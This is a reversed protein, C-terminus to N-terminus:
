SPLNNPDFLNIQTLVSFICGLYMFIQSQWNIFVSPFSLSRTGGDWNIFPPAFTFISILIYQSSPSASLLAIQLSSSYYGSFYQYKESKLFQRHHFNCIRFLDIHLHLDKRQSCLPHNWQTSGEAPLLRYQGPPHLFTLRHESSMTPSLSFCQFQACYSFVNGINLPLICLADHKEINGSTGFKHFTCKTMRFCLKFIPKFNLM